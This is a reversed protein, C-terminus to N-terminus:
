LNLWYNAKFVVARNKSKFFPDSFYNDTYVLFFDSMPKYRWQLRSNINFNNIQTNYQLFTTWFIKNSFYIEIRPNILFFEAEGYPDPFRLKNYGVGMNINGWHQLRYNLSTVLSFLTGNYFGGQRYNLSYTVEKRVDSTYQINWQNYVYKRPPLPHNETFRTYFLLRTDQRDLRLNLESRNKFNIFYRIRNLQDNLTNDPNLITLNEVGLLHTYVAGKKPVIRYQAQALGQKFGLRIVSDLQADYNYLLGVFGMDTYYNTGVENYNVVAEVKAASYKAGANIFHNKKDIGPKSSIHYGGYANWKTTNSTFRAEVGANRGYAELPHLAKQERTMFGQRNLFYAGIGSRKLVQRKVTAATYNQAAFDGRSGTQMNMVGVRWDKSVNGSLRAGGIIPIPNGSPDLGITRSYFPRIGTFGVDSYLDANELFFPRREPFFINFRTLNTVQQDVEVQSFDPNVTLDLNLSPTVAVKADFGTNFSGNVPTNAEKDKSLSGTIYPLFSINKGPAPPSDEWVLAGYYGFDNWNINIPIKTWASYQGNKADVRYFNIGWVTKEHSYRFSKFPVAMEATWYNDYRKAASFWKTDWTFSLNELGSASYAEDGQVNFATLYFLYGNTKQNLPDLGMWIADSLHGNVDRKLSNSIYPTTDQARVSVYLFHDDYALKVETKQRAREKDSFIIEWFDTAKDASQWSAESLEGDVKIADSCRSIKLQYAQANNVYQAQLCGIISLYFILFFFKM